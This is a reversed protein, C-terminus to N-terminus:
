DSGKATLEQVREVIHKNVQHEVFEGAVRIANRVAKPSSSGHGIICVGDVGLLPAGGSEAYDCLEKLERFAGQSLLAGLMRVPTKKLSQKLLGGIAKALGECTKLVVNGVFGDCLVVDVKGTFLDHGEINGVFNLHPTGELLKFTEKTLDNGKGTEGGVSILGIRPSSKGRIAREYVDGMIAYQLLHSPKCEVNSGVDLILFQGAPSPMLTAIAPREIGPLTRLKLVTAAVAAGTHGASVVADVKGQKALDVSVSISSRRKSRVASAPSEHMDVVQDAHVLEIRSDGALGVQVLEQQLRGEDGVLLIKTIWPLSGDLAQGVGEVIARPAHDGGMGDVAIVAM